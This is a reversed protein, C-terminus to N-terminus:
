ITTEFVLIQFDPLMAVDRGVYSISYRYQWYLVPVTATYITCYICYLRSPELTGESKLSFYLKCITTELYQYIYCYTGYPM